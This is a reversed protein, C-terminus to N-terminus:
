FGALNFYATAIYVTSKENIIHNLVDALKIKQNDIIDPITLSEMSMAEM